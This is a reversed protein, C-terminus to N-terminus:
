VTYGHHPVQTGVLHCTKNMRWGATKEILEPKWGGGGCVVVAGTRRVTLAQGRSILESVRPWMTVAFLVRIRTRTTTGAVVLVM